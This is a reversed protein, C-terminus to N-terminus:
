VLFVGSYWESGYFGGLYSFVFLRLILSDGFCREVSKFFRGSCVYGESVRRLFNIVNEKELSKDM